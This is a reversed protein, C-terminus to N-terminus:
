VITQPREEQIREEMEGDVVTADRQQLGEARGPRSKLVRIKRRLNTAKDEAAQM